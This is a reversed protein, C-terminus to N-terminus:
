SYMCSVQRQRITIEGMVLAVIRRHVIQDLRVKAARNGAFDAWTDIRWSCFSSVASVCAGAGSLTDLFPFFFPRAVSSKTETWATLPLSRASFAM